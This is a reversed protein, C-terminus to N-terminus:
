GVLQCGAKLHAHSGQHALIVSCSQSTIGANNSGAYFHGSRTQVSRLLTKCRTCIVRSLWTMACFPRTRPPMLRPGMRPMTPPMVVTVAWFRLVGTTCVRSLERLGMVTLTPAMAVPAASKDTQRQRHWSM